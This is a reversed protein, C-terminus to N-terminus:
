RVRRPELLLPHGPCGGSRTCRGSRLDGGAGREFSRGRAFGVDDGPLGKPSLSPPWPPLLVFSLSVAALRGWFSVCM